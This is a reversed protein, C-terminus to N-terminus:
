VTCVSPFISVRGVNKIVITRTSPIMYDIADFQVAPGPEFKVDPLQSGDYLEVAFYPSSKGDQLVPCLHYMCEAM